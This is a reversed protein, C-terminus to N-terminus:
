DCNAYVRASEESGCCWRFLEHGLRFLTGDDIVQGSEDCMLAYTGRWISLRSMNKTTALQLLAEADPGVIDYKRLSSMDQNYRKGARGTNVLPASLPYTLAWVDRYGINHLLKSTAPSIPNKPSQCLPMKRKVIRLQETNNNRNQLYPCSHRYPELWQNSRDDSMCDNCLGHDLAEMVVGIGQDRIVEEISIIHINMLGLIGFSTLPLCATRKQVGHQELVASINDSCNVHGPFGREEYGRATCAVSHTMVVAPIRFSRPMPNLDADFFKDLLGPQPYSGRVM